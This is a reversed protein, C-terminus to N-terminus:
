VVRPIQIISEQKRTQQWLLTQKTTGVKDASRAIVYPCKYTMALGGFAATAIAINVLMTEGHQARRLLDAVLGFAPIWLPYPAISRVVEDSFPSLRSEFGRGRSGCDLARDSQAVKVM